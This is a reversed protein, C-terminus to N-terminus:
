GAAQERARADASFRAQAIVAEGIDILRPLESLEIDPAKGWSCFPTAVIM